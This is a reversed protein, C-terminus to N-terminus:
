ETEELLAEGYIKPSVYLKDKWDMAKLSDLCEKDTHGQIFEDSVKFVGGLSDGLQDECRACYNYGFFFTRIRSHGILACVLKNRQQKSEPNIVKLKASLESRTM